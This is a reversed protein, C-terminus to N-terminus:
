RGLVQKVLSLLIYLVIVLSLGGIGALPLLIAAAILVLYRWLNGKLRFHSFKLSFMRVPVLMHFAMLLMVAWLFLASVESGFLLGDQMQEWYIGTWFLAHAPTALGSFNESDSTAVNFRALRLASLLPILLVSWRMGASVLEPLGESAAKQGFVMWAMAAPLVGFSVLDALSDLQKGTESYAKLLRAALGDLFDFAAAALLLGAAAQWKGELALLIGATGAALNLLTILNPIHKRM